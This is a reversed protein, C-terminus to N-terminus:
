GQTVGRLRNIIEFIEMIMDRQDERTNVAATAGIVAAVAHLIAEAGNPGFRATNLEKSAAVLRSAARLMAETEEKNRM